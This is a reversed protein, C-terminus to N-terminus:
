DAGCTAVNLSALSVARQRPIGQQREPVHDPRQAPLDPGRGRLPARSLFVTVDDALPRFCVMAAPTFSATLSARRERLVAAECVKAMACDLLAKQGELRKQPTLLIRLFKSSVCPRDLFPVIKLYLYM